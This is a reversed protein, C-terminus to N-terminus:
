DFLGLQGIDEDDEETIPADDRHRAIYRKVIDGTISDGVTRVFYGEAWLKGSWM